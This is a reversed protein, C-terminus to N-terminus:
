EDQRPNEAEDRSKNKCSRGSSVGTKTGFFNEIPNLESSYPPLFMFQIGNMELFDVVDVARHIRANDMIITAQGNLLEPCRVTLDTLFVTMDNREFAGDKLEVDM